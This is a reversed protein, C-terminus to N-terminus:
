GSNDECPLSDATGVVVDDWITSGQKLHITSSTGDIVVPYRITGAQLTCNRVVLEGEYGASPKYQINLGAGTSVYAIGHSIVDISFINVTPTDWPVRVPTRALVRMIHHMTRLVTQTSPQASCLPAAAALAILICPSTRKLM